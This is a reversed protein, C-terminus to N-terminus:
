RYTQGRLEKRVQKATAFKGTDSDHGWYSLIYYPSSTKKDLGYMSVIYPSVHKIDLQLVNNYILKARKTLGEYLNRIGKDIKSYRWEDIDESSHLFQIDKTDVGMIKLASLADVISACQLEIPSESSPLVYHINM